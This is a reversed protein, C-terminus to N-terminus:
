PFGFQKKELNRSRSFFPIRILFRNMNMKESKKM